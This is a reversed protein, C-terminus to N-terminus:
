HCEKLRDLANETIERTRLNYFKRAPTQDEKKVQNQSHAYIRRVFVLAEKCPVEEVVKMLSREYNKLAEEIQAQLAKESELVQGAQTYKTARYDMALLPSEQHSGEHVELAERAAKLYELGRKLPIRTGAPTSVRTSLKLDELTEMLNKRAYDCGCAEMQTRSREIANIANYAHYRILSLDTEELAKEIQGAALDVIAETNLCAKEPAAATLSLTGGLAILFHLAKKMADTQLRGQM